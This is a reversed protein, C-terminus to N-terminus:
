SAVSESLTLNTDSKEEEEDVQMEDDDSEVDDGEEIVQTASSSPSYTSTVALLTTIANVLKHTSKYNAQFNSLVECLRQLTFPAQEFENLM